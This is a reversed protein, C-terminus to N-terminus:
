EVAFIQQSPGEVAAKYSDRQETRLREFAERLSEAGAREVQIKRELERKEAEADATLRELEQELADRREIMQQQAASAEAKQSALSSEAEALSAKAREVESLVEQRLDAVSKTRQAVNAERAQIERDLRLAEEELTAKKDKLEEQKALLEEHQEQKERLEKGLSEQRFHAFEREVDAKMKAALEFQAKWMQVDKQLSDRVRVKELLGEQCAKLKGAKLGVSEELSRVRKALEAQDGQHTQAQSDIRKEYMERCSKLERENASQCDLRQHELQERLAENSHVAEDLAENSARIQQRLSEASAQVREREGQTVSHRAELQQSKRKATQIGA